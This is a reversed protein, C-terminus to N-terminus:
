GLHGGRFEPQNVKLAQIAAAYLEFGHEASLDIEGYRAAEELKSEHGVPRFAELLEPTALPKGLSAIVGDPSPIRPHLERAASRIVLAEESLM